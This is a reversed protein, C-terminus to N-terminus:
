GEFPVEKPLLPMYTAFKGEKLERVAKTSSRRSPMYAPLVFPIEM